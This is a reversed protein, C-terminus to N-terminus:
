SLLLHSQTRFLPSDPLLVLNVRDTYQYVNSRQLSWTQVFNITDKALIDQAKAPLDKAKALLYISKTLLDKFM